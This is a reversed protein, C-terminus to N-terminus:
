AAVGTALWDPLRDPAQDWFPQGTLHTASLTKVIVTSVRGSRWALWERWPLAAGNGFMLEGDLRLGPECAAQAALTEAARDAAEPSAVPVLLDLDSGPRLHDLGTLLQWGHSGYVRPVVGAQALADFWAVWRSRAAPAMLRIVERAEPFEGVHAVADCGVTLAIRLRGWRSPAPLGLSLTGERWPDTSTQRTLVLPWGQAAWAAMCDQALPGLAGDSASALARSWGHSHLWVLQHRRLSRM